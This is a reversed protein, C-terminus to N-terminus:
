KTDYRRFRGRMRMNSESWSKKYSDGRKEQMKRVADLKMRYCDPCYKKGEVREPKGCGICLLEADREARINKKGKRLRYRQKKKLCTKCWKHGEEPKENGCRPCLGKEKREDYIRKSQEKVDAKRKRGAIKARCELCSKENPFIEHKGCIPCLGLSLLTEKREKQYRKMYDHCATCMVGDRDVPKGCYTCLKEKRREIKQKKLRISDATSYSKKYSTSSDTQIIRPKETQKM